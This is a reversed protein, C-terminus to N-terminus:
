LLSVLSIYAGLCIVRLYGLLGWKLWVLCLRVNKRNLSFLSIPVLM